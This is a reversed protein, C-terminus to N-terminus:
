FYFHTKLVLSLPIYQAEITAQEGPRPEFYYVIGFRNELRAMLSLGFNEHARWEIGWDMMAAAGYSTQNYGDLEADVRVVGAGIDVFPRVPKENFWLRFLWNLQYFNLTQDFDYTRGIEGPCHSRGTLAGRFQSFLGETILGFKLWRGTPYYGFSLGYVGNPDLESEDDSSCKDERDTFARLKYGYALLPLPTYGAILDASFHKDPQWRPARAPVEDAEQAMVAFPLALLFLLTVLPVVRRM